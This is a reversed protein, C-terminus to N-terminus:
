ENTWDQTLQAAAADLPARAAKAVAESSPVNDFEEVDGVILEPPLTWAWRGLKSGQAGVRTPTAGLKSLAARRVDKGFGREHCMREIDAAWMEGGSAAFAVRLLEEAQGTKTQQLTSGLVEDIRRREREVRWEICPEGDRDAIHLAYGPEGPPLLNTKIPLLLRSADSGTPDPIFAFAARPAGVFSMSGSIRNIAATRDNKTFHQISLMATAHVKLLSTLPDLVNRVQNTQNGDILGLFSSLPDPVFLGPKIDSFLERLVTLHVGLNLHERGGDGTAIYDFNHVRTMDAGAARLRPKVTDEADDEASCVIVNRPEFEQGSYPSVKGGRTIRAAIDLSVTSKALGPVGAITTHKGAWLLGPYVFVRSQEAIADFRRTVARRRRSTALADIAAAGNVGPPHVQVPKPAQPEEVIWVNGRPSKRVTRGALEGAHLLAEAELTFRRSSM